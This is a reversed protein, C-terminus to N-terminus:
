DLVICDDSINASPKPTTFSKRAKQAKRVPIINTISHQVASDPQELKLIGPSTAIRPEEITEPPTCAAVGIPEEQSFGSVQSEVGVIIPNFSGDLSHNETAQSDSIVANFKEFKLNWSIILRNKLEM